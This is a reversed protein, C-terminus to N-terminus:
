PDAARAVGAEAGFRELWECVYSCAEESSGLGTTEQEPGEVDRSSIIRCRLHRTADGEVWVRLLLFGARRSPDVM